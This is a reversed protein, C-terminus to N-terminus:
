LFITFCSGKGVESELMIKGNHLEVIKKTLYLGLGTGTVKPQYENNVQSFPHFLKDQDEKSIGVGNDCIKISLQNQENKAQITIKGNEHSFKVANSLINLVAQHLLQVDVFIKTNELAIDLTINKSQAQPEILVLVEHMFEDILIEHKNLQMNDSEIKSFNLITNILRLLNNGSINIKEVFPKIRPPLDKQQELIQSFGIISNLPTRLEHSMNAFFADKAKQAQHAKSLANDLEHTRQLIKEELDITQNQLYLENDAKIKEYWLLVLSLMVLNALFIGFDLRSLHLFDSSSFIASLIFILGGLWIFGEKKNLMFFMIAIMMSFWIIRSQSEPAGHILWLAIAMGSFLVVRAVPYYYEKKQRLLISGGLSIFVFISDAIAQHINGNLYRVFIMFFVVTSTLIMLAMLTQFKYMFLRESDDFHHSANLISNLRDKFNM